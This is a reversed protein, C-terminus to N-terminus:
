AAVWRAQGVAEKAKELDLTAKALLNVLSGKDHCKGLADLIEGRSALLLPDKAVDQPAGPLSVESTLEWQQPCGEHRPARTPLRVSRGQRALCFLLVSRLVIHATEDASCHGIGSSLRRQLSPSAWGIRRSRRGLCAPVAFVQLAGQARCEM